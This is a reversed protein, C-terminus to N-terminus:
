SQLDSEPVGTTDTPGGTKIRRIAWGSSLRCDFIGYAHTRKKVEARGNQTRQTIESGWGLQNRLFAKEEGQRGLLRRQGVRLNGPATAARWWPRDM